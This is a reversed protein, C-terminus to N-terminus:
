KIEYYVGGQHTDEGVKFLIIVQYKGKERMNFHGVYQAMMDPNYTLMHTEEKGDPSIVKMNVAADEVNIADKKISVAIHHTNDTAPKMFEMKMMKMMKQYDNHTMFDFSVDFGDIKAELTDMQHKMDEMKAMPGKSGMSHDMEAFAVSGASGLFATAIVAAFLKKM